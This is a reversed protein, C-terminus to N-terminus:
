QNKEGHFQCSKPMLCLIPRFFSFLFGNRFTQIGAAVKRREEEVQEKRKARAEEDEGSNNNKSSSSSSEDNTVASPSTDGMKKEVASTAKM